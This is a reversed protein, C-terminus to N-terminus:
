NKTDVYYPNYSGYNVNKHKKGRADVLENESM